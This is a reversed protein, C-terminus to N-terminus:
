GKGNESFPIFFRFTSGEGLQSEAYVQGAHKEVIIKVYSLGLGFGKVNHINGTPVRYLRDFIKSLNDKSIGIGNDTVAVEIGNTRNQTSVKIEPAGNAYKNANDILNYIVNTLHVADGTIECNAAQLDTFLNGKKEKIQIDIKDVVGEILQHLNLPQKKLKFDGKDLVASQLVEEVLLGLRKNEDNIMGVYRKLATQSSGIEPDVLAECALSITSIPTKLEHTMNNIFDNKIDSLKKQRIIANVSFYFVSIIVLLLLASTCLMLWMTKLIYTWQNPFYLTLFNPAQIIDMPFLQAQFSIQNLDDEWDNGNQYVLQKESDFIAFSFEAEIGRIQLEHTLLSDITKPDVRDTINEFLNVEMLSKVIDGLFAKKNIMRDRLASDSVLTEVNKLGEKPGKSKEWVNMIMEVDEDQEWSNGESVKHEIIKSKKKGEFEETVKIHVKDGDRQYNRVRLYEFGTDPISIGVESVSDKDLFLFQGQQHSKLHEVTEKRELADVVGVLAEKAERSFEEQRLSVANNIWYIQIVILGLM